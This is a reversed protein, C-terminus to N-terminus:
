KKIFTIFTKNRLAKRRGLFYAIGVIAVVGVIAVTKAAGLTSSTSDTLIGDLENLKKEIDDRSISKNDQSRKDELAM